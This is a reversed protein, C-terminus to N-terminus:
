LNDTGVHLSHLLIYVQQFLAVDDEAQWCEITIHTSLQLFSLFDVKVVVADAVGNDLVQVWQRQAVINTRQPFIENDAFADLVVVVM